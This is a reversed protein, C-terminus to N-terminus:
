IENAIKASVFLSDPLMNDGLIGLDILIFKLGLQSITQDEGREILSLCEKLTIPIPLRNLVTGLRKTLITWYKQYDSGERMDLARISRIDRGESVSQLIQHTIFPQGGGLEFIRPALEGLDYYTSFAAVENIKLRRCSTSSATYEIGSMSQYTASQESATSIIQPLKISVASEWNIWRMLLSNFADILSTTPNWEHLYEAGDLLLFIGGIESERVIAEIRHIVLKQLDQDTSQTLETYITSLAGAAIDFASAFEFLIAAFLMEPLWVNGSEAIGFRQMPHKHILEKLDILVVRHSHLKLYAAHNHLLSTKGSKPGGKVLIIPNRTNSKLYSDCDREVYNWYGAMKWGPIQHHRLSMPVLQLLAALAEKAKGSRHLDREFLHRRSQYLFHVHTMLAAFTEARMQTKGTASNLLDAISSHAVEPGSFERFSVDLVQRLYNLHTTEASTFVNKKVAGINNYQSKASRLPKLLL